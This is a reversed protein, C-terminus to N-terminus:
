FIIGDYKKNLEDNLIKYLKEELNESINEQDINKITNELERLIISRIFFICEKAEDYLDEKSRGTYNIVKQIYEDDHRFKNLFLKRKIFHLNRYKRDNELAYYCSKVFLNLLDNIKSM